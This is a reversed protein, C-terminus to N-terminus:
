DLRLCAELVLGRPMFYAREPFFNVGVMELLVNATAKLKRLANFLDVWKKQILEFELCGNM